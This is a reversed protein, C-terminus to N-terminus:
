ARPAAPNHLSYTCENVGRGDPSPSIDTLHMGIRECLARSPRNDEDTKAIVGDFGFKVFAAQVLAEIAETAYGRGGYEPNFVYGVEATSAPEDLWVLGVEGVVEGSEQTEVLLVLEDGPAAFPASAYTELETLTKERSWVGASLHEAVDERSRYALVADVDSPLCRRLHLRKTTIM